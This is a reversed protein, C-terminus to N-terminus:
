ASLVTSRLEETVEPTHGFWREFGPVAQHLLMGLGDVTKCGRQRATYLLPTELPTYVCDTVVSRSTLTDLPLVFPDKNDMGLSSTNVVLSADDFMNGVDSWDVVCVASGFDARLAEARARTRNAVRVEKVGDHLLSYIIARAAGGAGIVAAPGAQPRWSPAGAYLNAMFGYGDTNDAHIEGDPGFTITNAAGINKASNSVQDALSLVTEKHPITVNCGVFGMKAMSCFVSKLDQSAIDMPIYYGRIGYQKLWYGHVLPSRSHSIPSGIVAALPIKPYTM